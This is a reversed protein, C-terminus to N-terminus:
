KRHSKKESDASKLKKVTEKEFESEVRSRVPAIGTLNSPIMRRADKFPKGTDKSIQRLTSEWEELRQVARDHLLKYIELLDQGRVEWIFQEIIAKRIIDDNPFAAEWPVPGSSSQIVPADNPDFGRWGSFLFRRDIKLARALSDDFGKRMQQPPEELKSWKQIQDPSCGVAKAFDLQRAFGVFHSRAKIWDGWHKNTAM